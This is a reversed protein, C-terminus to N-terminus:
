GAPWAADIAQLADQLEEEGNIWAVIEDRFAGSGVQAPMLDSGDFRFVEAEALIQAQARDTALPYDDVEVERYASLTGGESARSNMFAEGTTLYELVAVAAPNDTALSAIDGGGLLPRGDYSGMGPAPPLFFLDYDVGYETGEPFLGVAFSAQRHLYCAPPDEFMPTPSDRFSTTLIGTPGGLVNGETLAVDAFVEFAMTVEPSDFPLEGAVWQDYVDPGWLRLMIDEIWDSAVWGTSGGSEIGLCWPTVGDAKIQDALATLEDWTEPIEYGAAEFAPKPYWVLSKINITFPLAYLEGDVLGLDILGAHLRAELDARDILGELSRLQGRRAFGAMSGPQPFMLIDPPNNGEVRTVAITSFDSSGEYEVTIGTDAGFADLMSQFHGDKDTFAGLITVTSGALSPESDQTTTTEDPAETGTAGTTDVATTTSESDETTSPESDGCATVVLAAAILMAALRRLKHRSHTM